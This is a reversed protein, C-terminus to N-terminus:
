HLMAPVPLDSNWTATAILWKGDVKRWHWVYKGTDAFPKAGAPAGPAPVFAHTYHGRVVALPGNAIVSETSHTQTVKWAAFLPKVMELWKPRGSLSPANPPYSVHDETLLLSASDLTGAAYYRELANSAAEIESKVANSEAAMRAEVQQATEASQCAGLLLCFSVVHSCRM